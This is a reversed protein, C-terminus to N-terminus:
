VSTAQEDLRQEESKRKLFLRWKSSQIQLELPYFQSDLVQEKSGSVAVLFFDTLDAETLRPGPIRKDLRTKELQQVVLRIVEGTTTKLTIFLQVVLPFSELIFGFLSEQHFTVINLWCLIYDRAWM